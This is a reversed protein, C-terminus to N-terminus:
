VEGGVGSVYLGGVDGYRGLLLHEQRERRNKCKVGEEEQESGEM